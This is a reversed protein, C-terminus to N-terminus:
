PAVVLIRFTGPIVKPKGDLSVKYTGTPLYLRGTAPDEAVTRAGRQTAITQAVTIAGAVGVRLVTIQGNKTLSGASPIFVLNRHEDFLAADPHPGIVVDAVERGDDARIVKAHGNGCTSVLLRGAPIFALGTPQQCNSLKYHLRVIRARTDIVAIEATDALNVYLLGRGDVAAGELGGGVMIRGASRNAELDIISIDNSKSNMVFVDGSAPDLIAADPDTGVPITALLEGTTGDILTATNQGGNTLFLRGDPLAFSQHVKQGSAVHRIEGTAVDLASVGDDRSILVRGRAVDFTAFDWSGSPGPIVEVVKASKHGIPVQCGALALGALLAACLTLRKM